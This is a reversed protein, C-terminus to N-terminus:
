AALPLSLKTESGLLDNTVVLYKKGSITARATQAEAHRDLEFSLGSPRM